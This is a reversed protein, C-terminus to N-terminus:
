KHSCTRKGSHLDRLNRLFCHKNKTWVAHEFQDIMMVGILGFRASNEQCSKRPCIVWRNWGLFFFLWILCREWIALQFNLWCRPFWEVNGNCNSNEQWGDCSRSTRKKGEEVGFSVGLMKSPLRWRQFPLYPLKRRSSVYRMALPVHRVGTSKWAAPKSTGTRISTKKGRARLMLFWTVIKKTPTRSRQKNLMATPCSASRTAQEVVAHRKRWSWHATQQGINSWLLTMRTEQSTESRLALIKYAWTIFCFMFGVGVFMPLLLQLVVHPNSHVQHWALIAVKWPLRQRSFSLPPNMMSDVKQLSLHSEFHTPPHSNVKGKVFPNDFLLHKQLEYM